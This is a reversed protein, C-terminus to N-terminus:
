FAAARLEPGIASGFGYESYELELNKEDGFILADDLKADHFEDPIGFGPTCWLAGVLDEHKGKDDYDTVTVKKEKCTMSVSSCPSDKSACAQGAERLELRLADGVRAVTGELNQKSSGKEYTTGAGPKGQAGFSTERHHEVVLKAAHPPTLTLEYEGWESTTEWSMSCSMHHGVGYNFKAHRPADLPAEAAEITVATAPDASVTADQVSCSGCVM